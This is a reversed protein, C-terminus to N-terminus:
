DRHRDRLKIFHQICKTLNREYAQINYENEYIRRGERGMRRRMEKDQLLHIVRDALIEADKPDVVYGNVGERIMEPISGGPSAIVPLGWQMAELCVLPFAELPYSTPFVFIDSSEFLQAKQDGYIGGPVKVRDSLGSKEIYEELQRLYEFSLAPGALVFNVDPDVEAVKRAMQLFEMSGKSPVLNSLYLVQVKRGDKKQIQVKSHSFDSIANPLIFIRHEQILEAVDQKLKEGLVIVGLAGSFTKHVIWKVGPIKSQSLGKFGKGHVYLVYDVGLIRLGSLYFSDLLFGLLKVANFYFCLSTREQITAMLLRIALSPIKFIKKIRFREVEAATASFSKEVLVVEYKLKRLSDVFIAAMLNSGHVPPPLQAVVLIRGNKFEKM